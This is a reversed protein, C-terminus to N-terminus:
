PAATPKAKAPAPKKRGRGAIPGATEREKHIRELLAGAPEYDRGETRALEAETPVLEGRFAKALIAQPLKDTRAIAVALRREISDALAFLADVRRVIEYQEDEGPLPIPLNRVLELTLNHQGVTTNARSIAWGIIQDCLVARLLYGRVLGEIPRLIAIAQNTNWEPFSAPVLAAQGLPPGVINILIDGPLVTSRRMAGATHTERDIFAPSSEFCLAGSNTLHQIKVFPVEGSPRM